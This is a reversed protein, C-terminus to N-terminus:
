EEWGGLRNVAEEHSVAKGENIEQEGNSFKANVYLAKIIEEFSSEDPMSDILRKAEEKVKM